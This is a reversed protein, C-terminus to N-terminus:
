AHAICVFAKRTQLGLGLLEALVDDDGRFVDTVAVHTASKGHHFHGYREVVIKQVPRRFLDVVGVAVAEDEGLAVAAM